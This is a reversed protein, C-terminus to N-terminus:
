LYRHEEVMVRIASEVQASLADLDRLSHGESAIPEGVILKFPHPMIHFTNMPLAEYTGVIAVPLIPVGAKVALYFPGSMFPLMAGHPSRGGEPFIVVPHGHKIAEVAKHLSRFSARANKEDVPLQGSRQLHWGLFPIKFLEVKAVIRFSTPLYAYLLPIDFSSLHNAAIVYPASWDANDMGYTDIPIPLSNLILRAWARAIAHQMRGDRDFLSALLSVVGVVGTYLFILPDWILYSRLRSLLHALGRGDAGPVIHNREPTPATTSM